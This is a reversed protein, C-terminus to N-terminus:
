RARVAWVRWEGPVGKLEQTGRDDFELGSGVVLDRVTSSVLIEGAAALASIRAAIHVALGAVDDGQVEIEGTHLGARLELGLQRVEDGIAGACRVARAPGDFTALIGDGTTKIERGGFRALERRAVRNHEELLGRWRTDGMEAALRTSGVIDTFLITALVRTATPAPRVGTVFDQIEALITEADGAWIVKDDGPLEVYRANPIHEALYRGHAAGFRRGGARHIVLTPVRIAPLVLRVDSENIFRVIAKMSGPSAAHREFRSWARRLVPDGALSPGLLDLLVGEGARAETTEVEQDIVARADGIPFDPAVISRAFCDVLVLSSVRDPHTAALTTAILGGGINGIVVAKSSGVADLVGIADDTWAELIPLGSTPVPDSLGTGRKDFSIVRGFSALGELLGRLPPIEWQGEVDGIWHLLPLIDPPGEGVLQYALHLDGLRAYRTEPIM